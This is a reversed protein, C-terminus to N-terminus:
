TREDCSRLRVVRRRPGPPATAPKTASFSGFDGFSDTITGTITDGAFTVSFLDSVGGGLPVLLRLTNGSVNGYLPLIEDPVNVVMCDGFGDSSIDLAEQLIL